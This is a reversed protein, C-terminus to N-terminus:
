IKLLIDKVQKSFQSYQLIQKLLLVCVDFSSLYLSPM